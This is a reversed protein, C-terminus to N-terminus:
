IFVLHFFQCLFGYVAAIFIYLLPNKKFKFSLLFLFVLLLFAALSTIHSKYFSLMVSCLLACGAPKLAYLVSKVYFNNNYTKLLKSIFIIILYSPLVLSVTALIGGFVGLTKFGAFTAMNVGVPGPTLMSIAIMNTLQDTTYWGYDNILGFLFPITAYGGGISFLGIKFFESILYFLIM